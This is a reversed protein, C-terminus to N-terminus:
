GSESFEAPGVAESGSDCARDAVRAFPSMCDKRATMAAQALGATGPDDPAAAAASTTTRDLAGEPDVQLLGKEFLSAEQQKSFLGGM